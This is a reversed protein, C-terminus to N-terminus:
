QVDDLTVDPDRLTDNSVNDKIDEPIVGHTEGSILNIHGALSAGFNTSYFNDSMAFHQAYNWLGTVMNGNFFGM